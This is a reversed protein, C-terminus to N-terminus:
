QIVLWLRTNACMILFVLFTNDKIFCSFWQTHRRIEIGIFISPVGTVCQPNINTLYIIVEAISDASIVWTANFFGRRAKLQFLNKDTQPWFWLYQCSNGKMPSYFLQCINVTLVFGSILTFSIVISQLLLLVITHPWDCFSCMDLCLLM